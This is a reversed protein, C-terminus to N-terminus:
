SNGPGKLAWCLVPQLTAAVPETPVASSSVTVPGGKTVSHGMPVPLLKLQLSGGPPAQGLM